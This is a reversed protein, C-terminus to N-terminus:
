AKSQEFAWELPNETEGDPSEFENSFTTNATHTHYCNPYDEYAHLTASYGLSQLQNIVSVAQTYNTNNGPNDRAGHFAWIKVNKFADSNTIQASGSVPVIASFTDPHEQVM